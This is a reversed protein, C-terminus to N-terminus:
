DYTRNRDGPRRCPLAVPPSSRACAANASPCGGQRRVLPRARAYLLATGVLEPTLHPNDELVDSVSDGDEIRGLLSYVTIRKGRLVPTGAEIDPDVVICEDRVM